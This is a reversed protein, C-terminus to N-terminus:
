MQVTVELGPWYHKRLSALGPVHILRSPPTPANTHFSWTTVMLGSGPSPVAVMCRRRAAPLLSISCMSARGESPISSCGRSGVGEHYGHMWGHGLCFPVKVKAGLSLEGDSSRRATKRLAWTKKTSLHSTPQHSISQKNSATMRRFPGNECWGRRPYNILLAQNLSSKEKTM